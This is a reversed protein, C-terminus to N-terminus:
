GDLEATEIYCLGNPESTTLLLLDAAIFQDNEMRIIDGVQVKHWREEVSKGNLLVHSKRNNVQSDSRHRQQIHQLFFSDLFRRWNSHFRCLFCPSSVFDDYADKIATLLLVGILPVATTVPTLSSIFPIFQLVLLCLFYFNALRQFQELLNVPVFSLLTYKSTQIYNDKKLIPAFFQNFIM